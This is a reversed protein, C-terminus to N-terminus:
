TIFTTATGHKGAQFNGYTIQLQLAALKVAEDWSCPYRGSIVNNRAEGYLLKIAVEDKIQREYERSCMAERKLVFKFNPSTQSSHTYKEMWRRWKGTMEFLDM